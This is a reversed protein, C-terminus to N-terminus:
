CCQSYFHPNSKLYEVITQDDLVPKADLAAEKKDM